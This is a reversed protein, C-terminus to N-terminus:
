DAAKHRKVEGRVRRVHDEVRRRLADFTDRVAVYPDEHGAGSPPSHGADLEAGPVVLRAHVRYPNGQHRRHSEHEITVHCGTADPALRELKTIREAIVDRLAQSTPMGHFTIELPMSMDDGLPLLIRHSVLMM